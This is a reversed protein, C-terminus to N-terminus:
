CVVFSSLWTHFEMFSLCSRSEKISHEQAQPSMGNATTAVGVAFVVVLIPLTMVVSPLRTWTLAANLFAELPSVTSVAPVAM